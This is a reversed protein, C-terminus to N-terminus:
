RVDKDESKLHGWIVGNGPKLYPPYCPLCVSAITKPDFDKVTAKAVGGCSALLAVFMAFRKIM